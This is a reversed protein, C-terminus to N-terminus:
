RKYISGSGAINEKISPEGKYIVDGSGFVSVELYKTVNVECDGSGAIRIYGAEAEFQHAIVDGSGVINIEIETGTSNGALIIDGSGSISVKVRECKAKSLKIDGSGAINLDLFHTKIAKKAYITGSGQISLLDIDKTVVHIDIPGPRFDNFWRDEISFKIVLKGNNIEIIIKDLTRESATISVSHEAGQELYLNGAVRLSINTFPNTERKETKIEAKATGISLVIICQLLLFYKM